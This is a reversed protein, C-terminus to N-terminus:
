GETRDSQLYLIVSLQLDVHKKVHKRSAIDLLERDRKNLAILDPNMSSLERSIM